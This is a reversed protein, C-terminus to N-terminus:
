LTIFVTEGDWDAAAQRLFGAFDPAGEPFQLLELRGAEEGELIVWRTGDPSTASAVYTMGGAELEAQAADIDQTTAAMHHITGGGVHDIYPSPKTDHQAILEIQTDGMMAFAASYDATCPAGKYDMKAQQINRLAFFPGVGMHKAWWQAAQDLDEVVYAVQFIPGLAM